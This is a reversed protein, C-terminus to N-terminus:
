GQGLSVLLWHPLTDLFIELSPNLKGTTHYPKVSLCSFIWIVDTRFDEYKDQSIGTIECLIFGNHSYEMDPENHWNYVIAFNEDQAIIPVGFDSEMHCPEYSLGNNHWLTISALDFNLKETWLELKYCPLQYPHSVHKIRKVSQKSM